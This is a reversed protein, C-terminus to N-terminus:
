HATYLKLHQDYIMISLIQGNVGELKFAIDWIEKVIIYCKSWLSDFKEHPRPKAWDEDWKCVLHGLKFSINSAYRKDFWENM